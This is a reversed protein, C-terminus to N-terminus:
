PGAPLSLKGHLKPVPFCLIFFPMWRFIMDLLSVMIMLLIFACITIIPISLSCMMGVDLGPQCDPMSADLDKHLPWPLVARVLDVFGMGRAKQVQGCLMDSIMFVANKNFKRLGAPSTDLPMAIRVPRAPADPDYYSAMQFAETAESVIAPKLAGCTPCEFALRIVFWVTEGPNMVPQAALPLPPLTFTQAERAPILDLALQDVQARQQQFDIQAPDALRFQFTPWDGGLTGTYPATNAELKSEFPGITRLAQALTLSTRSIAQIANYAKLQETSGQVAAPSAAQIARWLKNAHAELWKKLDLLILWSVNQIDNRAATRVRDQQPGDPMEKEPATLLAYVKEARDILAKWPEIVQAILQVVRPDSPPAPADSPRRFEGADNLEGSHVYVERRSVPILGGFLRRQRGDLEAYNMPFLPLREEDVPLSDPDSLRKWGRTAGLDVFACEDYTHPKAPNFTLGPKASLRRVVFSVRERAGPRVSRDPLGPTRCVLCGTILYFRQHAPQYLKLDLPKPQAQPLVPKTPNAVLQRSVELAEKPSFVGRAKRLQIAQQISKSPLLPTPLPGNWTEPKATLEAIQPSATQLTAQFEDMFSDTAFRLIAPRRFQDLSDAEGTRALDLWLPAATVWQELTERTPM